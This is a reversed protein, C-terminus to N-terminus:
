LPFLALCMCSLFATAPLTCLVSAKDDDPVCIKKRRAMRKKKKQRKMYRREKKKKRKRGNRSSLTRSFAHFLRIRSLVFLAFLPPAFFPLLASSISISSHFIRHIISPLPFSSSLFHSILRMSSLTSTLSAVYRRAHHQSHQQQQQAHGPGQGQGTQKDHDEM